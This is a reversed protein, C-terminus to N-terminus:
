MESFLLEIFDGHDRIHVGMAHRRRPKNSITTLHNSLHTDPRNGSLTFLLHEVPIGRFSQLVAEELEKALADQHQERL